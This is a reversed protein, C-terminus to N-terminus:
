KTKKNYYIFDQTRKTCKLEEIKQKLREVEAALRQARTKTEIALNGVYENDKHLVVIYTMLDQRSMTKLQSESKQPLGHKEKSVHERIGLGDM